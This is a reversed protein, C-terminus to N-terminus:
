GAAAALWEDLRPDRAAATLRAFHHEAYAAFDFENNVSLNGPDFMWHGMGAYEWDVLMAGEGACGDAATPLNSPLLDDHCPVPESLPLVSAIRAALGRAQEYM